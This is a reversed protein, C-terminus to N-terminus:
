ETEVYTCEHIYPLSQGNQHQSSHNHSHKLTTLEYQLPRGRRTPGGPGGPGGVCGPVMRHCCAPLLQHFAKRFNDSLFAYLIPNVCSHFFSRFGNSATEWM